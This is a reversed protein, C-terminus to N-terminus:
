FNIIICASVMMKKIKIMSILLTLDIWVNNNTVILTLVYYIIVIYHLRVFLLYSHM